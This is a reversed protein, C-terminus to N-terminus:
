IIFAYRALDHLCLQDTTLSMQAHTTLRSDNYTGSSRIGLKWGRGVIIIFGSSLLVLSGPIPVPQVTLDDMVFSNGLPDGAILVSQIGGAYSVSLLENTSSGLDGSLALNSGFLSSSSGVLINNADYAFISLPVAYTFYAGVQSVPNDFSIVVSGGNDIAANSGSHPPAEFENLSLGATVVMTNTFSMQPVQTTVLESDAFQEFDVVAASSLAPLTLGFFITLISLGKTIVMKM